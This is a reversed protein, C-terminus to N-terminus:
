AGRLVGESKAIVSKAKQWASLMEDTIPGAHQASVMARLALLLEIYQDRLTILRLHRDDEAPILAVWRGQLEHAYLSLPHVSTNYGDVAGCKDCGKPTFDLKIRNGRLLFIPEKAQIPEKCTFTM